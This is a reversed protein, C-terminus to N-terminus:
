ESANEIEQVVTVVMKSGVFEHAHFTWGTGKVFKKTPAKGIDHLLAAWRMWLDETTQAINDVVELTHFFNNKHSQGEIDEVIDLATLEPMILGLLGSRYLLEFGISPKDTSLIKNLEDVIREQSIISIRDACAKIAEFSSKEIEFNLQCAFRIARLMRLPDDSYTIEPSLPTKILKEELHGLGGFPDVLQGYDAENLSIALANITFDRRNQDDSLLGPSVEPNRSDSSYSEKRAGVFEIEIDEYRLMATGFNKFVKVPTSKPLLDAVKKALEIGDGLSVIDIDKAKGRELIADRVFGGIVYAEQGLDAAAQKIFSFVDAQISDEAKFDVLM